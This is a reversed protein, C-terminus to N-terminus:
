GLLYWDYGRKGVGGKDKGLFAPAARAVKTLTWVMEYYVKKRLFRM